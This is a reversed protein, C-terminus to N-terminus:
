EAAAPAASDLEFTREWAVFHEADAAVGDPWMEVRVSAASADAHRAASYALEFTEGPLLRTDFQEQTAEGTLARAVTGTQQTGALPAGAADVQEVILLVQPTATSPLRHAAGTNELAVAVRVPEFRGGPTTLSAQAQFASRVLPEDHAGRWAHSGEPMHCSQCTQGQAALETRRWESYTESLLKGKVARGDAPLEHCAACFAADQMQPAALAGGHAAGDAEADAGDPGIRQHARVHCAACTVGEQALADQYDPNEAGDSLTPQQEHMPAACSPCTAVPQAHAHASAQWEALQTAHCGGCSEASLSAEAEPWGEPAPGSAPIPLAWHDALWPDDNADVKEGVKFLPPAHVEAQVFPVPVYGEQYKNYLFFLGFAAFLVYLVTNLTKEM